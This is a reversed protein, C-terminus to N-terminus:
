EDPREFDHSGIKGGLDQLLDSVADLLQLFVEILSEVPQPLVEVVPEVLGIRAKSPYFLTEIIEAFEHTLNGEVLGSVLAEMGVMHLAQFLIYRVQFPADLSEFV